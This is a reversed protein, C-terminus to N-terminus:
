VVPQNVFDAPIVQGVAAGPVPRLDAQEQGAMAVPFESFRQVGVIWQVRGALDTRIASGLRQFRHEGFQTCLKRGPHM